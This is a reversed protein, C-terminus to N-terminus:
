SSAIELFGAEQLTRVRTSKTNVVPADTNLPESMKTREVLRQREKFAEIRAERLLRLKDNENDDAKSKEVQSDMSEGPTRKLGGRQFAADVPARRPTVAGGGMASPTEVDTNLSESM